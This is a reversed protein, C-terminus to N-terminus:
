LHFLIFLLIYPTIRIPLLLTRMFQRIFTKQEILTYNSRKNITNQIELNKMTKEVKQIFEM